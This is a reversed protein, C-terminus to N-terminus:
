LRCNPRKGAARAGAQLALAKVMHESLNQIRTDHSPHTSLFEPQKGKSLKDMEQWLGISENPNFGAKAMYELGVIDAESEQIRGYPLLIGVQAGVGLLGLLLQGTQSEPRSAAQILTLGQQVAFQQSVRENGHQATVHAIEHGIVAALRDQNNAAKLIGTYVGIKRGPLAFANLAEDEFVVIEWPEDGTDIANLVANAVCSVFTNTTKNKSLPTEKKISSFAEIGMSDVQAAPLIMLQRRGTPSTACSAIICTVLCSLFIKKLM